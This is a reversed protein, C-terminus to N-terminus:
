EQRHVIFCYITTLNNEMGDDMLKGPNDFKPSVAGFEYRRPSSLTTPSSDSTSTDEYLRRNSAVNKLPSRGMQPTVSLEFDFTQSNPSQPSKQSSSTMNYYTGPDSMQHMPNPLCRNYNVKRSQSTPSKKFAQPVNTVPVNPSSQNFERHPGYLNITPTEDWSQQQVKPKRPSQPPPTHNWSM